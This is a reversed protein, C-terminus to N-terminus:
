NTKLNSQMRVHEFDRAYSRLIFGIIQGTEDQGEDCISEGEEVHVMAEFLSERLSERERTKRLFLLHIIYM